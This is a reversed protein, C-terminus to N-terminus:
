RYKVVGFDDAIMLLEHLSKHDIGGDKYHVSLPNISDPMGVLRSKGSRREARWHEVLDRNIVNAAEQVSNLNSNTVFRADRIIRQSLKMKFGGFIDSDAPTFIKSASLGRYIGVIDFHTGSEAIENLGSRIFKKIKRDKKIIMRIKQPPVQENFKGTALDLLLEKWRDEQIYKNFSDKLGQEEKEIDAATVLKAGPYGLISQVFTSTEERITLIERNREAAEVERRQHEEELRLEQKRAKIQESNDVPKPAPERYPDPM